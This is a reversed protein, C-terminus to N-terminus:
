TVTSPPNQILMCRGVLEKNGNSRVFVIDGNKLYDNPRLVNEDVEELEDYDPFFRNGFNSVGILKVGAKYSEKGFNIGNSFTAIDGLKVKKWETAM